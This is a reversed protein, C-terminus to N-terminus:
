IKLSFFLLPVQTINDYSNQNMPRPIDILACFTELGCVCMSYTRVNVDCVKNGGSFSKRSINFDPTYGYKCNVNLFSALGFIKSFIVHITLRPTKCEPFYLLQILESLIEGAMIRKCNM